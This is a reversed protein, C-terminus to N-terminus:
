EGGGDTPPASERLLARLREVEAEARERRGQETVLKQFALRAAEEEGPSPAPPLHMAEDCLRDYERSCATLSNRLKVVEAADLARLAHLADAERGYACDGVCPAPAPSACSKCKPWGKSESTDLGMAAVAERRDYERAALRRCDACSSLLGEGTPSCPATGSLASRLIAQASRMKISADFASGDPPSLMIDARRAAERVAGDGCTSCRPTSSNM